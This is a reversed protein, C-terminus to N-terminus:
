QQESFNTERNILWKWINRKGKFYFKNLTTKFLKENDNAFNIKFTNEYICQFWRSEFYSITTFDENGQYSFNNHIGWKEKLLSIITEILWKEFTFLIKKNNSANLKKEANMFNFFSFLFVQMQMYFQTNKQLLFM